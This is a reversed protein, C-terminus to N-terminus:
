KIGAKEMFKLLEAVAKDEDVPVRKMTFGGWGDPVKVEKSGGFGLWDEVCDYCKGAGLAESTAGTHRPEAKEVKYAKVFQARSMNAQVQNHDCHSALPTVKQYDAGQSGHYSGYSSCVFFAAKPPLGLKILRGFQEVRGKSEYIYRMAKCLWLTGLSGVLSMDIVMGGHYIQDLNDRNLVGYAFPSDQAVWKAFAREADSNINKTTNFIIDTKKAEARWAYTGPVWSHCYTGVLYDSTIKGTDRNIIAGACIRSGWKGPASKMLEDITKQCAENLGDM